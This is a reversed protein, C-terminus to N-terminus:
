RCRPLDRDLASRHRFHAATAESKNPGMTSMRQRFAGVRQVLDFGKRMVNRLIQGVAARKDGRSPHALERIQEEGLAVTMAGRKETNSSAPLSRTGRISEDPDRLAQLPV